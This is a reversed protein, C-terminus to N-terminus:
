IIKVNEKEKIETRDRRMIHGQQRDAAMNSRESSVGGKVRNSRIFKTSVSQRATLEPLLDPLSNLGM